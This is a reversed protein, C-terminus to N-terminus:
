KRWKLTFEDILELREKVFQKKFADDDPLGKSLDCRLGWVKGKLVLNKNDDTDVTVDVFQYATILGRCQFGDMPITAPDCEGAGKLDAGGGGSVLYVPLQLNGNTDNRFIRQYNHEHGCIVVMIGRSADNFIKAYRNRFRASPSKGNVLDTCGYHGISYPPYHVLVAKPGRFQTVEDLFWRYQEEDDPLSSNLTIFKMKGGNVERIFSYWSRTDAPGGLAEKLYATYSPELRGAIERLLVERSRAKIKADGISDLERLLEEVLKKTTDDPVGNGPVARGERKNVASLHEALKGVLAEAQTGFILEHNGIAPYLPIKRTGAYNEAVVEVFREFENHHVMDGSFLVFDPNMERIVRAIANHKVQPKETTLIDRRTDGYAIFHLAEACLQHSTLFLCVFSVSIIFFTKHRRHM